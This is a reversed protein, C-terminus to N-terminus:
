SRSAEEKITMVRCGGCKTRGENYEECNACAESCAEVARNKWKAIERTLHQIKLDHENM